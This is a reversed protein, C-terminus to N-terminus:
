TVFNSVNVFITKVHFTVLEWFVAYKSSSFLPLYTSQIYLFSDLDGQYVVASNTARAGLWDMVKVWNM